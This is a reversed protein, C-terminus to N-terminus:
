QSGPMRFCSSGWKWGSLAKHSGAKATGPVQDGNIFICKEEKEMIILVEWAPVCCKHRITPEFDYVNYMEAFSEFAMFSLSLNMRGFSLKFRTATETGINLSESQAGNANFHTSFILLRSLTNSLKLGSKRWTELSSGEHFTNMTIWHWSRELKAM